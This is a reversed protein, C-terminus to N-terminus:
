IGNHQNKLVSSIFNKELRLNYNEFYYITDSRWGFTGDTYCCFEGPIPKNTIVDIAKGVAIAGKKGNKLYKLVKEKGKIPTDSIMDMISPLGADRYCERCKGIIM